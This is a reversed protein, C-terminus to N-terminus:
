LTNSILILDAFVGAATVEAGAGPGKIVLPNQLYRKTTYSIMNDSGSLSSFPHTPGVAKLGVSVKKNELTAVFCLKEDKAKADKALKNFVNDSKELEIFFADVTPADICNQPLPNDVKIDEPELALGSERSLILIKRAVDMGNLDDRPDPETFGLEKAKLVIEKFSTSGDYTNFIFSLSGSLVGEIKVIEDGSHMLGQLTGIVPLGAGVNTEYLFKVGRKAATEKLLNYTALSGSNAVKNPTVLSISADLITNYYKVIDKNSTNDVFVSNPLNLSKMKEIFGDFSMKESKNELADKWNLLDLGAEDFVMQRSNAIAIVNINLSHKELLYPAQDKIQALLTAGILGPGVMFVNLSRSEALFFSDHLANLAKSIDKKSIVASINLESSGQAIAVVNVGNRGLASFMKGSIGPTNMMNKGIIAVISLEKLVQPEDIRGTEIELSFADEIVKKARVGEGPSVAFTISHESSAQTILVINIEHQALCSFLRASIGPMGVMGSGQVTVLSVDNISSIGKVRHQNVNDSHESIVTGEFTPNFTNKIKIPIKKAFVPQLTPPYIVKAGFHSMEMAESYTISPLSFANKVKRPDATMVGDVDTWIEAVEANLASALIAATYDSGGRGLTTTINNDDSGIFGTVFQAGKAKKFHDAILQNTAKFNVKAYGFHSDTKVIDRSDVFSANLGQAKAAETIIFVSLREGHSLVFDQSKQSLEGVLFIGQLVDELDNLKQKLYAFVPSQNKVEILDRVIAIHMDEFDKLLSTYTEDKTSAKEAMEVLKNTMGGVASFVATFPINKTSYDSLIAIVKKINESSGVSTGGFKLVRM